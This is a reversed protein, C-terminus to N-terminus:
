IFVDMEERAFTSNVYVSDPEHDDPISPYFATLSDQAGIYLNNYLKWFVTRM